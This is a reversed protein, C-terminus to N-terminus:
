AVNNFNIVVDEYIDDDGSNISVTINKNEFLYWRNTNSSNSISDSVNWDEETLLNFIIDNRTSSEAVVVLEDGKKDKKIIAMLEDFSSINPYTNKRM